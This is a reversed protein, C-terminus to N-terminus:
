PVCFSRRALGCQCATVWCSSKLNDVGVTAASLSTPSGWTSFTAMPDAFWVARMSQGDETTATAVEGEWNMGEYEFTLFHVGKKRLSDVASDFQKDNDTMFTVATAKNTGAYQSQYVFLRGSGCKYYV